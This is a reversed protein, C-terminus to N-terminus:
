VEREPLKLSGILSHIDAVGNELLYTEIGAVIKPIAQPDIFNATGVEVAHAGAIIYELADEACCIGGIGVVPIEVKKAVEWVMRLALPKIAPGSLGGTINALKPQRSRIDIALGLFTNVLSLADAGAAQAAEAIAAIDAVNPSLKVWLPFHTAQRVASVIQYTSPPTAGFQMGGQTVNPCSINLELAAIGEALSLERAVTIYEAETHGFINVIIATDYNRLAPLKTQLFRKVGVNQLGIANLLGAPTEALRPTPNGLRPEWSLGKTVIGGIKGLDTWPAYEEGYGFTGSAALAPNKLRVGGVEVQLNPKVSNLEM